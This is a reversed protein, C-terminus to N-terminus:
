SSRSCPGGLVVGVVGPIDKFNNRIKNITSQANMFKGDGINKVVLRKYVIIGLLEFYM